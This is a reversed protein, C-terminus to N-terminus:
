VRCRIGKVEHKPIVADLLGCAGANDRLKLSWMLTASHQGQGQELVFQEHSEHLNLGRSEGVM